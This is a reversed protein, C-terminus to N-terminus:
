RNARNKVPFPEDDAAPLFHACYRVTVSPATEGDLFRIM